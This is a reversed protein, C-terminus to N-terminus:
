AVGEVVLQGRGQLPVVIGILAHATLNGGASAEVGREVSVLYGKDVKGGRGDGDHVCLPVDVGRGDGVVVLVQLNVLEGHLVLLLKQREVTHCRVVALIRDENAHTVQINFVDEVEDIEIGHGEAALGCAAAAQAIEEAVELGVPSQRDVVELEFVTAHSGKVCLNRPVFFLFLYVDESSGIVTRVSLCVDLAIHRGFAVEDVQVDFGVAGVEVEGAGKHIAEDTTHVTM